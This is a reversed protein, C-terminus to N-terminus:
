GSVEGICLGKDAYVHIGQPEGKKWHGRSTSGDANTWQRDTPTDVGVVFLRSDMGFVARMSVRLPADM